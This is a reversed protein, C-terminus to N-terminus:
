RQMDLGDGVGHAVGPERDGVDVGVICAVNSLDRPNAM